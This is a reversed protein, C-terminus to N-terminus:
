SCSPTAFRYPSTSTMLPSYSVNKEEQALKKLLLCLEYRNPLDLFATPEDLLIVPTDQALARAIMIRQCEGDSMKDMTKEAYGSMGVLQMADDVRKQDEPQLQGIWNTYPARGLAVVDKCRLNAIRVKDTTVFSINRALKEPKLSAINKGQLTIEGSQPKELGMMARLLTSKGTGNRGLLAVLQGGTIRANVTELLTRQGYGLTLEKLEIMSDVCTKAIVWLIVPVGLLATICNVPLLFKKAIIDCLLMSILGTLMTGPVLIRHDANNFLLRTVHPVALGIFGVPGCFATVTGTLLATSVFIFTRSRKINMGMTRAYNEGLLLLNLSKICAVSILLGICLMPIMIGLQTVTIHSLSGMSWLTFMKLQEASSLYQLIQIIAGAVYGIMVGMILVGLINKVKRSIIAVGLLIVATGIWGSGVIGLSQLIPFEAWGLLPAGLIFLAVGLGAGSSVGLLYPDALPNQFVTQMQLGSVSLAIGILAAVVVRIFRISLLINRTMEDCEGGTLVAWVKTIPIYTDGTAMDILLLLIAVIGLTIFLFPTRKDPQKM